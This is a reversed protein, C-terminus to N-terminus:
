HAANPTRKSMLWRLLQTTGVVTGFALLTIVPAFRNGLVEHLGPANGPTGVELTGRGVWLGIQKPMFPKLLLTVTFAVGTGYGVLAVFFVMMGKFGTQAWRWSTRLLLWPSFSRGARALLFETRYREALKQPSGLSALVREVAAENGREGALSDAIHAEIECLIEEREASSIGRLATQLEMLYRRIMSEATGRNTIM